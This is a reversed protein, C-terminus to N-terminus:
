LALNRQSASQDDLEQLQLEITQIEADVQKLAETYGFDVYEASGLEVDINEGKETKLNQLRERELQLGSLEQKLKETPHLEGRSEFANM